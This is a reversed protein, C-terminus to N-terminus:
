KRAKPTFLLPPDEFVIRRVEKNELVVVTTEMDQLSIRITM